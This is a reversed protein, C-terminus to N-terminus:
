GAAEGGAEGGAPAPPPRQGLERDLLILGNTDDGVLKLQQVIESATAEEEVQETVFWQLFNNSAHDREELALDVLDNIRGSVKREHGLAFEFAELPSSCGAPPEDIQQLKVAGDRDHVFGFMKMAHGCEEQTQIRMWHAFGKLNLSEFLAVLGLYAYASFLEFNIQNNLAEEMKDSLM